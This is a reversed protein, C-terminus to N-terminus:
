SKPSLFPRSVWLTRSTGYKRRRSFAQDVKVRSRLLRNSWAFFFQREVSSGVSKKARCRRSTLSPAKQGPNPDRRVGKPRAVFDKRTTSALGQYLSAAIQPPIGPWRPCLRTECPSPFGLQPPKLSSHRRIWWCQQRRRAECIEATKNGSAQGHSNAVGYLERRGDDEVPRSQSSVPALPRSWTLSSLEPTAFSCLGRQQTSGSPQPREWKM